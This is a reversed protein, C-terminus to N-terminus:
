NLAKFAARINSITFDSIQYNSVIEDMIDQESVGYHRPSRMAVCYDEYSLKADIILVEDFLGFTIMQMYNVEDDGEIRRLLESVINTM